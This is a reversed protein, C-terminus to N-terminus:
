TLKALAAYLEHASREGLELSRLSYSENPAHFADEPLVFGSVVTPMGHNILEAVAPISGGTRVLATPMGCAKTLAEAALQIPQSEPDSLAPEALHWDLTVEAGDPVASRLLGEMVEKIAQPDQRPALRLSVTGQALAPVITRPEGGTIRNIELSADAGNREYYERGADPAVPRGGVEALVEDGAKLREWSELEAPAPPVIGARLEERPRGDPGPVLTALMGHLVHLANLVSGGYIGSHLDRPATHVGIEVMVMGRLAVTVAPTNEDAMGGDFVVACDAGREDAAIWKAVAESGAEEEGEVLVRVNVPLRDERALECAVHLLPLFNGKDDAAGRAYIRGDRIDPEFPPTTWASEDGVSQVDYHGYILVTPADKSAAKLDGIALPNGGHTTDPEASGGAAEVRECVWDAARALDKPDGGGTSISPIRLWDTLEDILSAPV